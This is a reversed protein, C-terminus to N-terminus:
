LLAGKQYAHVLQKLQKVDDLDLEGINGIRFAEMHPLKGSYLLFGHQKMTEYFDSFDFGEPIAFTTIIPAQDSEDVLAEFGEEQMFGCIYQHLTEYQKIRTAIGGQAMLESVAQDLALMVHTPSTFRFGKGTQFAIYQEYLDLSLSPCNGQCKELMAKKAIIIALGPVGHLCKNSSTILYDIHEFDVQIGAFSSMADVITIKGYQKALACLKKQDNLVGATTEHHIFSVHTCDSEKICDKVEDLPLAHLMDFQKLTYRINAHECIQAMREGYAGNSLILVHEEKGIASTLVSEVGYTGSGQLFVLEYDDTSLQALSLINQKVQAVLEDYEQDRTGLDVQMSAKVRQSTCLPGPTLLRKQKYEM